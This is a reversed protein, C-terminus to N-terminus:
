DLLRRLFDSVNFGAGGHGGIIGFHLRGSASIVIDLNDNISVPGISISRTVESNPCKIISEATVDNGCLACM